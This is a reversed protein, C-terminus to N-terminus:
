NFALRGQFSFAIFLVLNAKLEKVSVFGRPDGMAYSLTNRAVDIRKNWAADTNCNRQCLGMQTKREEQPLKCDELLEIFFGHLLGFEIAENVKISM